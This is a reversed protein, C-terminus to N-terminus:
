GVPEVRPDLGVKRAEDALAQGQDFSDISDYRIKWRGCAEFALETGVFGLAVVRSLLENAAAPDDFRGYVVEIEEDGAHAPQACEDRTPFRPSGGTLTLLPYGVLPVVVVATALALRGNV